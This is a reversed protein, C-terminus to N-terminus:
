HEISIKIASEPVGFTEALRRKAEMITLPQDQDATKANEAADDDEEDAIGGGAMPLASKTLDLTALPNYELM